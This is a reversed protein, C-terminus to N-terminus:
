GVRMDEADLAAEARGMNLFAEAANWPVSAWINDAADASHLVAHSQATGITAVHSTGWSVPSYGNWHQWWPERHYHTHFERPKTPEPVIAAVQEQIRAWAKPGPPGDLAETFGEFWAKFETLNM